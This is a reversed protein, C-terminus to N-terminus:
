ARKVRGGGPRCERNIYGFWQERNFRPNHSCCFRALVDLADDSFAARDCRIFDALSIFHKKTM